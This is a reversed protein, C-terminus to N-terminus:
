RLGLVGTVITEQRMYVKAQQGAPAEASAVKRQAQQTASMHM